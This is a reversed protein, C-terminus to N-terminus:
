VIFEYSPPGLARVIAEVQGASLVKSRGFDLGHEQLRRRFTDKGLRYLAALEKKSLTRAIFTINGRARHSPTSVKDIYAGVPETDTPIQDEHISQNMVCLDSAHLDYLRSIWKVALTSYHVLM